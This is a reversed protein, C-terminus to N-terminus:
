NDLYYRVVIPSNDAVRGATLRPRFTSRAIMRVLNKKAADTVDNASGVIEIGDSEGYKGIKFAVDIYGKSEPTEESALPNPFFSPLVVPTKPSFIDEISAASTGADELERYAAEYTALVTDHESRGNAFLLDWDAM